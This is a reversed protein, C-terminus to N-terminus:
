ASSGAEGKADRLARAARGAEVLYLLARARAVGEPGDVGRVVLIPGHFGAEGGGRVTDGELRDRVAALGEPPVVPAAARRDGGGAAAPRVALLRDM